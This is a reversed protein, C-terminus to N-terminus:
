ELVEFYRHFDEKTVFECNGDRYRVVYDEGCIGYRLHEFEDPNSCEGWIETGMPYLTRLHIEKEVERFEVESKAKKWETM